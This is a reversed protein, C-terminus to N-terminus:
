PSPGKSPTRWVLDPAIGTVKLYGGHVGLLHHMPCLSTLNALDDSGGKSRFEIHHAHLAMRSCGPVTCRWGDRALARKQPTTRERLKEQWVRIFHASAIALAEGPTVWKGTAKRVARVTEAVVIAVREPALVAMRGSSCMQAEDGSDIERRLAICTLGDAKAIWEAESRDSAVRAVERAKVYSIRGEKLAAGLKPLEYLKRALAIRQGVARESMGLREEVYHGFSFFKMDSSLGCMRLLMALHGVLADWGRRRVALEKLRADLAHPDRQVDADGPDGPRPPMAELFDWRRYEQELWAKLEEREAADRLRYAVLERDNEGEGAGSRPAISIRPRADPEVPHEGLYETCIAELKQWKPAGPREIVKGALEMAADVVLRQDPTLSVEIRSWAEDEEPAAAEAAKVAARLARVTELRAREVWAAEDEGRAVALITEAKRSSVEGRWVAARLLPRERLARALRALNRATSDKLGLEERGYDAVCSYGLAVLRGGVDLDALLEGMAVDLAGRAHAVRVLLGDLLYGAEERMLGPLEHPAPPELTRALATIGGLDSPLPGAPLHRGGIGGVSIAEVTM